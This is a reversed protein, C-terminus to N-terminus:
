SYIIIKNQNSDKSRSQLEIVWPVLKLMTAV